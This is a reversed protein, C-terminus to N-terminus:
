PGERAKVVEEFKKLEGAERMLRSSNHFIITPKELEPINDWKEDTWDEAMGDNSEEKSPMAMVIEPNRYDPNQAVKAFWDLIFPHSHILLCEHYYEDGGSLVPCGLIRIYPDYPNGDPGSLPQNM